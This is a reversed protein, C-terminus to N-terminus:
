GPLSIRSGASLYLAGHLVDVLEESTLDADTLPRQAASPCGRAAKALVGGRVGTYSSGLLFRAHAILEAARGATSPTAGSTGGFDMSGKDDECTAAEFSYRDGTEYSRNPTGLARSSNVYPRGEADVGGVWPPSGKPCANDGAGVESLNLRSRPTTAPAYREARVLKPFNGLPCEYWRYPLGSSVLDRGIRCAPYGVFVPHSSSM